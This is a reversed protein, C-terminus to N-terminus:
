PSERWQHDRASAESQADLPEGVINDDVAQIVAPPLSSGAPRYQPNDAPAAEARAVIELNWNGAENCALGALSTTERLQFTRCYHGGKSRFSVGIQVPAAGTQPGALQNSLAQRLAGSALLQGNRETISGPKLLSTGFQLALAGLVFSAALAAWKPWPRVPTRSRFLPVVKSEAPAPAPARSRAAAILRDPVREGLVPDFGSRLADRLAQHSAVRRAIEPDKNIADQVQERTATDLEGDAYAMLVENSFTM